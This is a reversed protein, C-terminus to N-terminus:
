SADGAHDQRGDPRITALAQGVLSELAVFGSASKEELGLIELSTVDPALEYIGNEVLARLEDASSGCSHGSKTIRLRVAGQNISLEDITCALKRLRGQMREVATNVRTELADPHLSYLLLLAGTVEDKGLQTILPGGSERCEFAVDMLRELGEAHVEMLLQVLERGKTKQPSEPM